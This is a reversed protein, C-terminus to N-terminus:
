PITSKKNSCFILIFGFSAFSFTVCGVVVDCKQSEMMAKVCVSCIECVARPMVNMSLKTM